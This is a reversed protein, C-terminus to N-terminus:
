ASVTALRGADRREDGFGPVSRTLSGAGSLPSLLPVPPSTTVVTVGEGVEAMAFFFRRAASPLAVRRRWLACTWDAAAPAAEELVAGEWVLNAEGEGVLDAEGEGTLDGRRTTTMSMFSSSM